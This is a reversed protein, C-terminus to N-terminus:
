AREPNRFEDRPRKRPSTRMRSMIRVTVLRPVQVPGRLCRRSAKPGHFSCARESPDAKRKVSAVSDLAPTCVRTTSSVQRAEGEGGRGPEPFAEPANQADVSVARIQPVGQGAGPRGEQRLLGDLIQAGQVSQVAAPLAKKLCRARFDPFARFANM